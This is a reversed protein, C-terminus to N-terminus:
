YTIKTIKKNVKTTIPDKEAKQNLTSNIYAYVGICGVLFILIFLISIRNSKQVLYKM